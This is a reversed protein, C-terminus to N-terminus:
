QRNTDIRGTTTYLARLQAFRGDNDLVDTSDVFQDVSGIHPPLRRVEESTIAARLAEVFRDADIVLYKLGDWDVGTRV